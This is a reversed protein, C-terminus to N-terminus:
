IPQGSPTLGTENENHSKKKGVSNLSSVTDYGSIAHMFPLGRCYDNGLESAIVHARIYRFHASHGFALWLECDEMSISTPIVLVLVDTDTTHVMIRKMGNTYAYFYHLM